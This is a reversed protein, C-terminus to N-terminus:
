KLAGKAVLESLAREPPIADGPKWEGRTLTEMMQRKLEKYLPISLPAGPMTAADNM